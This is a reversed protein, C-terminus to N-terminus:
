ALLRELVHSWSIKLDVLRQKANKGMAETVNRERFLKDMANALSEPTPEAIYGNFGDQVLELVGGSDTTTLVSKEAHSAELSPYGYSDEDVPLYAAALCVSLHAVKEEETIWRDELTVRDSLNYDKIKQRLDDVYAPSAGTGLIRLRVPTTTFSLAEILLHQRKHHEVRCMYVIEDNYGSCFFRESEFVPPYLVESDIDNFTKLRGSVVKSNTFIAKAEGLARTDADFLAERIARHKTDDAFDRYPSDWMDYFARIHHIFWLIKHPHEILHSQPRFCIVRDAAQLDVWRLAMMQQFLLDPADLEPLYVIEVQHGAETLTSALWDVINRGGGRIFPVFTSCLAIKM